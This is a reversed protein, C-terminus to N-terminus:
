LSEYETNLLRKVQTWARCQRFHLDAAKRHRMRKCKCAVRRIRRTYATALCWGDRRGSEVYEGARREEGSTQEGGSEREGMGGEGTGRGWGEEGDAENQGAPVYMCTQLSQVTGQKGHCAGVESCHLETHM